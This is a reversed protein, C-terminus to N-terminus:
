VFVDVCIHVVVYAVHKFLLGSSPGKYAVKMHLLLVIACRGLRVCGHGLAVLYQCGADTGIVLGLLIFVSLRFFLRVHLVCVKAAHCHEVVLQELAQKVEPVAPFHDQLSLALAPDVQWAVPVYEKWRMQM